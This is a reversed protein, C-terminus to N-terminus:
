LLGYVAIQVVSFGYGYTKTLVSGKKLYGQFTNVITGGSGAM